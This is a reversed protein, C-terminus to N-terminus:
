PKADLVAPTFNEIVALATTKSEAM